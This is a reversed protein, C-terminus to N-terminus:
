DGVKETTEEAKETEMMLGFRNAMKKMMRGMPIMDMSAMFDGEVGRRRRDRMGRIDPIMALAFVVNVFLVYALRAPDRTTLWLWPIMLWLGGMYSILVNKLVFLGVIMSIIATVLTGLPAIALFGGYIPSIGRGGKFRHYLPWNHGVLGMAAVILFYPTGPFLFRFVLTPILTKLIDLIATIGGWKAGLKTSVATGSVASIHAKEDSGPIDLEMGTIEQGPAVWRFILRAFSISGLLYGVLAAILILWSDM